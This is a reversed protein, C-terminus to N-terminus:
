PMQNPFNEIIREIEKGDAPLWKPFRTEFIERRLWLFSSRKTYMYYLETQKIEHTNYALRTHLGMTDCYIM